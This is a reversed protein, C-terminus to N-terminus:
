KQSPHQQTESRKPGPFDPRPNRGLDVQGSEQQKAGPFDPRPVLIKRQSEDPAITQAMIPTVSALAAVAAGFLASVRFM